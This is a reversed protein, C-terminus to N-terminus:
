VFSSVTEVIYLNSFLNSDAGIEFFSKLMSMNMSKGFRRPRTFLTVKSGIDVLEKVLRTKDVYYYNNKIIDKFNEAGISFKKMDAMTTDDHLNSQMTKVETRKPNTALRIKNIM